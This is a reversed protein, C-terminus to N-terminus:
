ILNKVIAICVTWLSFFKLFSNSGHEMNLAASANKNGTHSFPNCVDVFKSSRKRRALASTERLQLNQFEASSKFCDSNDDSMPIKTTVVDAIFTCSGLPMSSTFPFSRTSISVEMYNLLPLASFGYLLNMSNYSSNSVTSTGKLYRSVSSPQIFVSVRTRTHTNVIRYQALINFLQVTADTGTGIGNRHILNILESESLAIPPSTQGQKIVLATPTVRSGVQLLPLEGQGVSWREWPQYIELWNQDTIILGTATFEEVGVTLTIQSERGIADRSCCAM